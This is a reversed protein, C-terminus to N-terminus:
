KWGNLVTREMVDIFYCSLGNDYKFYSMDRRTEIANCALKWKAKESDTLNHFARPKNLFYGTYLEVMDYSTGIMEEDTKGDHVDGKPTRNIIDPLVNYYKAVQYVESKHLDSIIQIDCIDTHKGFYGIYSGEDRNITGVVVAKTNAAQLRAAVGYMVLPRLWYDVQGVSFPSKTGVTDNACGSLRSLNKVVIGPFAQFALTSAEDQGTTGISDYIPMSMAYVRKPGLAELLLSYTVASDVGGSIGIVAADLNHEEFHKRIAQVKLNVYNVVNFNRESRYQDLVDTITNM